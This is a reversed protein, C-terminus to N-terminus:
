EEANRDKLYPIHQCRLANGANRKSRGLDSAREVQAAADDGRDVKPGTQTQRLARGLLCGALWPHADDDIVSALEITQHHIRNALYQAQGLSVELAVRCREIRAPAFHGRADIPKVSRQEDYELHGTQEVDGSM